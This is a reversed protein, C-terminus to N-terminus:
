IPPAVFLGSDVPGLFPEPKRPCATGWQDSWEPITPHVRPTWTSWDEIYQLATTYEAVFGSRDTFYAFTNDGPGHRGPGWVCEEGARMLRGSARLYEDIGRTEYAIHNITPHTGRAIAMTHHWPGDAALFCMLDALRDSIRLGLMRCYWETLGELDPTNFVVHSLKGPVWEREALERAAVQEVAASIEITRGELDFFRLGYGGGPLSALPGPEMTIQAGEARLHAAYADVDEPGPVALSLLDTREAETQRLRLIYPDSTAVAGLFSVGDSTAREILGWSDRYFEVQDRLNPVGLAIYRVHTIRCQM